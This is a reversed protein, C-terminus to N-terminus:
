LIEIIFDMIKRERLADLKKKGKEEFYRQSFRGKKERM